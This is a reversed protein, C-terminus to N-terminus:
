FQFAEEAIHAFADIEAPTFLLGGYKKSLAAGNAEIQGPLM